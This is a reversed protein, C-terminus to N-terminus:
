EKQLLKQQMYGQKKATDILEKGHNDGFKRSSSLFGYGKVYKRFKPQSSYRM